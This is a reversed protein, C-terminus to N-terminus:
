NSFIKTDEKRKVILEPCKGSKHNKDMCITSEERSVFNRVNIEKSRDQVNNFIRHFWYVFYISRKLSIDKHTSVLKMFKNVKKRSKKHTFNNKIQRLIELLTDTHKKYKMEQILRNFGDVLSIGERQWSDVIEPLPGSTPWKFIPVDLALIKNANVSNEACKKVPNWTLELSPSVDTNM